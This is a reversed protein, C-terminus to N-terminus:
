QMVTCPLMESSQSLRPDFAPQLCTQPLPLAEWLQFCYTMGLLWHVVRVTQFAFDIDCCCRLSSACGFVLFHLYSFADARLVYALLSHSHFCRINVASIMHNILYVCLVKCQNHACKHMAFPPSSAYSPNPLGLQSATQLIFTRAVKENNRKGHQVKFTEGVCCFM